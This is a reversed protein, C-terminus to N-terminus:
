APRPGAAAGRHRLRAREERRADRARPSSGWDGRGDTPRVRAVDFGVRRSAVAENASGELAAAVGRSEVRYGAELVLKM